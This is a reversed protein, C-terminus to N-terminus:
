LRALARDIAFEAMILLAWRDPGEWGEIADIGTRVRALRDRIQSTSNRSYLNLRAQALETVLRTHQGDSGEDRAPAGTSLTSLADEADLLARAVPDQFRVLRRDHVLQPAGPSEQGVRDGDLVSSPFADGCAMAASLTQADGVGNSLHGDRYISGLPLVCSGLLEREPHRTWWRSSGEAAIRNQALDALIGLAWDAEDATRLDNRQCFDEYRCDRALGEAWDFIQVGESFGYEETSRRWKLTAM